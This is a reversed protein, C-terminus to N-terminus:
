NQGAKSKKTLEEIRGEYYYVIELVESMEHLQGELLKYDETISILTELSPSECYYVEFNFDDGEQYNNRVDSHFLCNSMDISSDSWSQFTALRGRCYEFAQHRSEFLNIGDRFESSLLIEVSGEFGPEKRKISEVVKYYPQGDYTKSEHHHTAQITKEM